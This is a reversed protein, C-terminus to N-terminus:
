NNVELDIPATQVITGSTGTISLPYDGAPTSTSTTITLTSSGAGTIKTPNFAYSAGSPLSGLTLTIVGDFGSLATTTVTYAASGGANISQIEPTASLTFNAGTVVLMATTTETLSGSTGKINLLYTGPSTNGTTTITLTSSGSGTITEPSFGASVNSPLGTVNLSVVGTFGNTAATTVTYTAGGGVAVTESSPSSTVAFGPAASV